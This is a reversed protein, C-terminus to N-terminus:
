SSGILLLYTLAGAEVCFTVTEFTHTSSTVTLTYPDSADRPPVNLAFFMSEEADTSTRATNTIDTSDYYVHIYDGDGGAGPDPTIEVTAGGIFGSIQYPDVDQVNEALVGIIGGKGSDWASAGWAAVTADVLSRSAMVLLHYTEEGAVFTHGITYPDTSEEPEAKLLMQTEDDIGEIWFKGCSIVEGESLWPEDCDYSDTVGQFEGPALGDGVATVTIGPALEYTIRPEAGSLDVDYLWVRGSIVLPLEAEDTPVDATDVADGTESTTDSPTSEESCGAVLFSGLVVVILNRIISM